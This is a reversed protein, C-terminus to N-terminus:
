FLCELLTEILSEADSFPISLNTKVHLFQGGLYLTSLYTRTRQPRLINKMVMNSYRCCPESPIPQGKGRAPQGCIGKYCLTFPQAKFFVVLAKKIEDGIVFHQQTWSCRISSFVNHDVFAFGPFCSTYRVAVCWRSMRRRDQM